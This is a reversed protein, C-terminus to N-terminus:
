DGVTEIVFPQLYSDIDDVNNIFAPISFLLMDHSFPVKIKKEIVIENWDDDTYTVIIKHRQGQVDVQDRDRRALEMVPQKDIQIEVLQLAKLEQNNVEINKNDLLISHQKGVLAMLIAFLIVIIIAAARIYFRKNIIM